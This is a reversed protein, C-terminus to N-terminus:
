LFDSTHWSCVEQVVDAVKLFEYHIKELGYSEPM